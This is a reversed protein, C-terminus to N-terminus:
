TKSGFLGMAYAAHLALPAGWAVLPLVFWWEGPALLVNATVGAAMAVFYVAMHIAFGRLRQQAPSPLSEEPSMTLESM